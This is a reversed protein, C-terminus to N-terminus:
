IQNKDSMLSKKYSIKLVKLIKDSVKFEESLRFNVVWAIKNGSELILVKDKLNNPVKADILVDSIKKSKGGMGIPQFTDGHKWNRLILPFTLKAYDLFAVDNAKTINEFNFSEITELEMNTSFLEILTTNQDISLNIKGGTEKPTIVLQARDVVLVHTKSIFQKGSPSFSCRLIEETEEFGYEKLLEFLILSKYRLEKLPNLDLYIINEAKNVVKKQWFEVQEHLLMELMAMNDTFQDITSVFRPNLKELEPVVLHRMANRKYQISANSSDERWTLQHLKAYAELEIRSAFLLPRVIDNSKPKIGRLGRIGTGATLNLLVTEAQDNAHHATAIVELNLDKKLAKFWDYRLARAAMQISVHNKEKFALTDFRISFVEVGYKEGLQNVFLADGVSDEGRLQFNCHAIVFPIKSSYFLHTMVVSDLGGSVALLVKETPKFLNNQRIYNLFRQIM